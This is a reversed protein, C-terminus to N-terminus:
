SPEVQSGRVQNQKQVPEREVLYVAVRQLILLEMLQNLVSTPLLPQLSDVGVMSRDNRLTMGELPSTIDHNNTESIQNIRQVHNRDIQRVKAAIMRNYENDM